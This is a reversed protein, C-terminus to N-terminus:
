AAKSDPPDRYYSKILGGLQQKCKIRGQTPPTFDVDLVNNNKDEGRHPRDTNYYKIWTKCIYSLQAKHFIVFHNLCERKFTGIFSECYANAKPAQVPTKIVKIDETKFFAKMKKTPYLADRDRLLYKCELGEDDLWMSANRCQQLIWINNPHETPYSCYVKRSGLHIFVMVYVRHIGFLTRIDKTFFDCAVLSEKHADIFTKWTIPVDKNLHHPPPGLEEEIMINRVTSPGIKIGLKKLEGTVRRYGWSKNEGSIRRILNRVIRGFKRPRGKPKYDEGRGIERVWRKYTEPVVVKILEDVDHGCQEGIAVLAKREESTTSIRDLELRSRLMEIQFELFRMRANYKPTLWKLLLTFLPYLVHNQGM